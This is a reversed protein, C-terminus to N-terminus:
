PNPEERRERARRRLDPHDGVDLYDRDYARGQEADGLKWYASARHFISEVYTPDIELVEGFLAAARRWQARDNGELLAYALNFTGQRNRPDVVRLREYTTIAATRAGTQQQAFGLAFLLETDTPARDLEADLLTIAKVYRGDGLAELGLAREARRIRGPVDARDPDLQALRRLHELAQDSRGAEHLLRAIFDHGKLSDPQQELAARMQREAEDLRGVQQLGRGHYLLVEPTPFLRTATELHGVGEDTRGADIYALGLNLHAYAYPGMEVARELEVIAEELHGATRLSQGYNMHARWTGDGQAADRWLSLTSAWVRNRENTLVSFVAIVALMFVTATRAGGRAERLWYLLVSVVGCFGALSLYVRHENVVQRLIVGYSTLLLGVPFWLSWFVLARRRRWRVLLYVALLIVVFALVMPGEVPSVVLPYDRDVNLGVPAIAMKLYLLVIAKTQTLYHTLAPRIHEDGGFKAGAFAGARVGIFALSLGWYPLHKPLGRAFAAIRRGLPQGETEEARPGLLADWLLLNLPLSIAISKSLLATFYALWSGARCIWRARGTVRGRDHAVLFLWFSLLYFFAALAVSQSSVYVISETALPHAAFLAAGLAAAWTAARRRRPDGDALVRRFIALLLLVNAAHLAISIVHFPASSGDGLWWAVAMATLFVPRYDRNGPLISFRDIDAFYSPIAGLDRIAPNDSIVHWDDFQFPARVSNAYVAVVLAVLGIGLAILAIARPEGGRREDDNVGSM